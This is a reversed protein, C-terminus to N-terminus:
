KKDGHLVATAALNFLALLVAGFLAAGFSTVTFGPAVAAALMMMLANIVLLFVGLTIITIPLTLIVLIPRILANVIGLVLAAILAHGFGEIAIGDIFYDVLALLLATVILHVLLNRLTM